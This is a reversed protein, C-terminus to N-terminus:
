ARNAKRESCCVSVKCTGERYFTSHGVAYLNEEATVDTITTDNLTFQRDVSSCGGACENRAISKAHNYLRLKFEYRAGLVSGANMFADLLGVSGLDITSGGGTYYHSVFDATGFLGNRDVLTTPRNAVYRYLNADGGGQRIPDESIWRGESPSYWRNVFYVLGTEFVILRLEIQCFFLDLTVVLRFGFKLDPWSFWRLPAAKFSM